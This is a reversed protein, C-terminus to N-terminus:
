GCSNATRASSPEPWASTLTFSLVVIQAGQAKNIEQMSRLAHPCSFVLVAALLHTRRPIIPSPPPILQGEVVSQQIVPM